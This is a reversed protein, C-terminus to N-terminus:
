LAGFKQLIQTNLTAVQQHGQASLDYGYTPDNRITATWQPMTMAYHQGTKPDVQDLAKMIKPDTIALSATNAGTEQNLVQLYQDAYQRVTVGRDIADSLGPFRNKAQETIYGTVMDPTVAGEALQRAWQMVAQDSLSVGYDDAMQKVDTAHKGIEGGSQTGNVSAALEYKIRTADWGEAVARQFLQFGPSNFGGTTDVKVGLQAETDDFLRKTAAARQQATAPDTIQLAQWQRVTDPTSKWWPTQELAAELRQSNWGEDLAQTYVDLVGPQKLLPIAAPFESTIGALIQYFDQGQLAAHAQYAM